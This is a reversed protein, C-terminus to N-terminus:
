KREDLEIKKFVKALVYSHRELMNKIKSCSGGHSATILALWGEVM